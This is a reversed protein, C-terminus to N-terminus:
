VGARNTCPCLGCAEVDGCPRALPRCTMRCNLLKSLSERSALVLSLM